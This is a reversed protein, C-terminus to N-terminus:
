TKQGMSLRSKTVEIKGRQYSRFLCLRLLANDEVYPHM